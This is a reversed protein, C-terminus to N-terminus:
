LLHETGCFSQNLSRAEIIAQQIAEKASASYDHFRDPLFNNPMACANPALGVNLYILNGGVYALAM